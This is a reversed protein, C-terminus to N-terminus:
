QQCTQKHGCGGTCKSESVRIPPLQGEGIIRKIHGLVRKVYAKMTPTIELELISAEPIYNIFGRKVVTGFNEEILLAYAVLQYKHDMWARGGNSVMNKYDVPIYEGRVTRIICDVNGRLELSSSSLVTFLLKEASIFDPSYYVADKRRLEKRVYDEHQEKGEEQQSGFIPAAHLVHDFYILRPCYIYHKVDTVSVFTEVVDSTPLRQRAKM